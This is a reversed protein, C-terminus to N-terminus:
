FLDTEGEKPMPPPPPPSAAEASAPLRDASFWEFYSDAGNGNTRQGTRRDVRVSVLGEPIPLPTTPISALLPSMFDM